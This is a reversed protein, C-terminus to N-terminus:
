SQNLQSVARSMPNETMNQRLKMETQYNRSINVKNVSSTGDVIRKMSIQNALKGQAVTKKYEDRSNKVCVNSFHGVKKCHKCKQNFAPCLHKNRRKHTARCVTGCYKCKRQDDLLSASNQDPQRGPQRVEHISSSAMVGELSTQVKRSTEKAEM